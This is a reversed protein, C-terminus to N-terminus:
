IRTLSAFISEYFDRNADYEEANTIFIVMATYAGNRYIICVGHQRYEYGGTSDFSAMVADVRIGKLAPVKTVAIEELGKMPRPNSEKLSELYSEANAEVTDRDRNRMFKMLLLPDKSVLNLCDSNNEGEAVLWSKGINMKVGCKDVTLARVERVPAPESEYVPEPEPTSVVDVAPAEPVATPHTQTQNGGGGCCATFIAAVLIATALFLFRFSNKM